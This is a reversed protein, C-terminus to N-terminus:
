SFGFIIRVEDGEDGREVETELWAYFESCVVRAPEHWDVNAYAVRPHLRGREWGYAGGTEDRFIAGPPPGEPPPMRGHDALLERALEQDARRRQDFFGGTIGGITSLDLVFRRLQLRVEMPALVPAHPPTKCWEEYVDFPHASRGDGCDVHRLPISIYCRIPTTWDYALLEDLTLWSAGWGFEDGVYPLQCHARDATRCTCSQPDADTPFGRSPVISSVDKFGGTGLALLDFLVPNRGFELSRDWRWRKATTDWRELAMAIDTGM